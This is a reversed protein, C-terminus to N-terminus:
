QFEQIFVDVQQGVYVPFQPPQFRYVVQLVRVDVRETNDGTLNRKPIIYPDIRVFKLPFQKSSDGKLHAVALSGPKVRPANTEDVNVRVQMIDTSGFLVPPASPTSSIYEGLRINLQLVRGNLPATVLLRNLQVEIENQRAKLVAVNAIAEQLRDATHSLQASAQTYLAKAQDVRSQAVNRAQLASNYTLFAVVGEKCLAENSKAIQEADLLTAELAMVNAKASEKAAELMVIEGRVTEVTKEARVLDATATALQAQQERDDIRYLPADKGVLDGEKIYIAAVQGPIAPTLSIDRTSSEVIGTGAITNSFSSVAPEHLPPASEVRKASITIWWASFLLGLIPLGIFLIRKM